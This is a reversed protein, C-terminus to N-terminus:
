LICARRKSFTRKKELTTETVGTPCIQEGFIANILTSKGSGSQGIVACTVKANKVKDYEKKSKQYFEQLLSKQDTREM